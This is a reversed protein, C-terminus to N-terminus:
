GLGSELVRFGTAGPGAMEDAFARGFAMFSRFIARRWEKKRYAEARPAHRTRGSRGDPEVTICRLCAHM